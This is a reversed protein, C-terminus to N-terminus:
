TRVFRELLLNSVSRRGDLVALVLVRTGQVRYLIRWPREIIEQYQLVGLARLEPVVRGREPHTGLAAVRSELRDLVALAMDLSDHAIHRVISELDHRATASWDVRVGTM